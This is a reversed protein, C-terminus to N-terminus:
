SQREEEDEIRRCEQTIPALLLVLHRGPLTINTTVRPGKSGM